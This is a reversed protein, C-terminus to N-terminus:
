KKYNFKKKEELGFGSHNFYKDFLDNSLSHTDQLKSRPIYLKDLAQELDRKASEYRNVLDIAISYDEAKVNKPTKKKPRRKAM